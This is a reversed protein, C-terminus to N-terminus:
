DFRLSSLIASIQEQYDRAPGSITATVHYHDGSAPMFLWHGVTDGLESRSQYRLAQQGGVTVRDASPAGDARVAEAYADLTPASSRADHIVTLVFGDSIESAAENEPGLVAFTVSEAADRSVRAGKPREISFGLEPNRYRRNADTEGTDTAQQSVPKFSALVRSRRKDRSMAGDIILVAAREGSLAITKVTRQSHADDQVLVVSGETNQIESTADPDAIESSALARLSRGQRQVGFVRLTVDPSHIVRGDGDSVVPEASYSAPYDFQYDYRANSYREFTAQHPDAPANEAGYGTCATAALASLVAGVILIAAGATKCGRRTESDQRM